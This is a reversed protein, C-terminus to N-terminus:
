RPNRRVGRPRIEMYKSPAEEPAEPVSDDPPVIANGRAANLILEKLERARDRLRQIGEVGPATQEREDM